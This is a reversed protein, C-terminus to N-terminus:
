CIWVAGASQLRAEPINKVHLCAVLSQVAGSASLEAIIDAQPLSLQQEPMEASVALLEELCSLMQTRRESELRAMEQPSRRPAVATPDM